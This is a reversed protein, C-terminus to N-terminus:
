GQARFRCQSCQLMVFSKASDLEQMITEWMAELKDHNRPSAISHTSYCSSDRSMGGAGLNASSATPPRKAKMPSLPTSPRAHDQFVITKPETEELRAALQQLEARMEAKEEEIARLKSMIQAKWDADQLAHARRAASGRADLQAIEPCRVMDDAANLM